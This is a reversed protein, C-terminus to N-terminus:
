DRGLKRKHDQPITRALELATTNKRAAEMRQSAYMMEAEAHLMAAAGWLDIPGIPGDYALNFHDGHFEVTVMARPKDDM